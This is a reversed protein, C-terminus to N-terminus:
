RTIRPHVNRTKKSASSRGTERSLTAARQPSDHSMIAHLFSTTYGLKLAAWIFFNRLHFLTIGGLLSM